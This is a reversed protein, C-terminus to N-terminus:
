DLSEFAISRFLKAPGKETVTPQQVLDIVQVVNQYKVSRKPKLIISEEKPHRVKLDKLYEGLGLMSEKTWNFRRLVNESSGETVMIEDQSIRVKFNKNKKDDEISAEDKFIPKTTAIEHFNIFQSSILLFFIFIFVADMVPTMNIKPVQQLNNKRM